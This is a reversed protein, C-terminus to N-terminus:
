SSVVGGIIIKASDEIARIFFHMREPSTSVIKYSVGEYIVDNKFYIDDNSIAQRVAYLQFKATNVTEEYLVPGASILIIIASLVIPFTIATELTHSM